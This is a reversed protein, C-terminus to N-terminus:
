SFDHGFEHPAISISKNSARRAKYARMDRTQQHFLARTDDTQLAIRHAGIRQIQEVQPPAHRDNM